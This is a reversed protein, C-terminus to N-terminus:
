FSHDSLITAWCSVAGTKWLKTIVTPHYIVGATWVTSQMAKSIRVRICSHSRECWLLVYDRNDDHREIRLGEAERARRNSYCILSLPRAGGPLTVFPTTDNRQRVVNVAFRLARASGSRPLALTESRSVLSKPSVMLTNIRYSACKHTSSSYM